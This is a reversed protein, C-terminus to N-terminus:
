CQGQDHSYPLMEAATTCLVNPTHPKSNTVQAMIYHTLPDVFESNNSIITMYRQERLQVLMQLMAM